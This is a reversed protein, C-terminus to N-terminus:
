PSESHTTSISLLRTFAAGTLRSAWTGLENGVNPNGFEKVRGVTGIGVGVHVGDIVMGADGM